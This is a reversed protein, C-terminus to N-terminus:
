ADRIIEAAIDSVLGEEYLRRFTSPLVDLEEAALRRRTKLPLGKSEGGLGLLLRAAHGYPGAGLADAARCFVQEAAFALNLPTADAGALRTVVALALVTPERVLQAPRVGCRLVAEIAAQVEEFAGIPV